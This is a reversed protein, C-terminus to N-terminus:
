YGAKRISVNYVYQLHDNGSWNPIYVDATTSNPGTTFTMYRPAYVMGRPSINLSSPGGFHDVTLSVSEHDTETRMVASLTYNTNPELGTVTQEISAGPSLQVVLHGDDLIVSPTGNLSWGDLSGNAGSGGDFSGNQVFNMADYDVKPTWSPFNRILSEVDLRGIGIADSGREVVNKDYIDGSRSSDILYDYFKTKDTGDPLEQLGLALAGSYIPAAFSTGTFSATRNEPFASYISEGPATSWLGGGYNTFSSLIDNSNVSGIGFMFGKLGEWFSTVAPYTIGDRTGDNGASSVVYVKQSAAYQLETTLSDQNEASGLSLNIIQAGHEIAWDIAAVVNDLDGSGNQDLVRLPLITAKPAVQLIIGAVGTGHGYGHDNLTGEEQPIADGDVFDKWEESAALHGAFVPHELDIGTDIVAVKVGEGFNRSIAQAQPLRIQSFAATNEAPLTPISSGGSWSTWGGSWSTWGGSWSTWGGIWANEANAANNRFPRSPRNATPVIPANLTATSPNITKIAPDTSPPRAHVSLIAFGSEPHWSLVKGDYKLALQAATDTASTQVTMTFKSDARGGSGSPTQSCASVAILGLAAFAIRCFHNTNWRLASPQIRFRIKMM